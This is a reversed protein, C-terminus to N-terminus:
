FKCNMIYSHITFGWVRKIAKPNRNTDIRIEHINFEKIAWKKIMEIVKLGFKRKCKPHMWAQTLEIYERDDPRWAVGFGIIDNNDNFIVGIFVDKPTYTMIQYLEKAIIDKTYAGDEIFLPYLSKIIDINEIRKINM